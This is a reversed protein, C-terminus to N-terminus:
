IRQTLRTQKLALFILISTITIALSLSIKCYVLVSFMKPPHYIMHLLHQTYIQTLYNLPPFFLGLLFLFLSGALLPPLLLNALFQLLSVQGWMALTLPLVMMHVAINAIFAQQLYAFVCQVHLDLLPPIQQSTHPTPSQSIKLLPLAFLLGTTCLFSLQFALTTIALPDILLQIILSLGLIHLPEYRHRRLLSIWHFLLMFFTRNVSSSNGFFLALLLLLLLQIYKTTKWRFFLSLIRETANLILAFHFGSIALIHSLGLQHFHLLLAHDQISGNLMSSFFKSVPTTFAIKETRQQLWGQAAQRSKLIPQFIKRMPTPTTGNKIKIFIQKQRQEQVVGQILYIFGIEMHHKSHHPLSLYCPINNVKGKFLTIKGFPTAKEKKQSITFEGHIEQGPKPLALTHMHTWLALGTALVLGLPVYKYGTIILLFLPVLFVWSPALAVSAGLLAYCGLVFGLLQQM